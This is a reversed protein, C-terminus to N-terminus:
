KDLSSTIFEIFRINLSSHTCTTCHDFSIKTLKYIIPINPLWTALGLLKCCDLSSQLINDLIAFAFGYLLSHILLLFEYCNLLVGSSLSVISALIWLVMASPWSLPSILTLDVLNYLSLVISKISWPYTPMIQWLIWKMVVPFNPADPHIKREQGKNNGPPGLQGRPEFPTRVRNTGPNCNKRQHPGRQPKLKRSFIGGEKPPVKNM